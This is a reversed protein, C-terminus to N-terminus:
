DEGWGDGAVTEIAALVILLSGTWLLLRRASVAGPSDGALLRVWGLDPRRLLVGYSLVALEIGSNFGVHAYFGM